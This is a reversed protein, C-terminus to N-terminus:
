VQPLESPRDEQSDKAYIEEMSPTDMAKKLYNWEDYSSDAKYTTEELQNKLLDLEEILNPDNLKNKPVDEYKISIGKQQELHLQYEKFKKYTAKKIKQQKSVIERELDKKYSLNLKHQKELEFIQKKINQTKKYESILKQKLDM